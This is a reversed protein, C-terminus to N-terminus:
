WLRTHSIQTATKATCRLVDEVSSAARQFNSLQAEASNRPSAQLANTHDYMQAKCTDVSIYHPYPAWPNFHEVAKYVDM